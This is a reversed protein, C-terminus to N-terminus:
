PKAEMPEKGPAAGYVIMHAHGPLRSLEKQSVVRYDDEVRIVYWSHESHRANERARMKAEELQM